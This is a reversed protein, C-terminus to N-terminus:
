RIEIKPEDLFLFVFSLSFLVVLVKSIIFLFHGLIQTMLYRALFSLLVLASFNSSFILPIIFQAFELYSLYLPFWVLFVLTLSFNLVVTKFILIM